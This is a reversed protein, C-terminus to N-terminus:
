SGLAFGATSFGDGFAKFLSNELASKGKRKIDKAQRRMDYAQLDAEYIKRTNNMEDIRMQTMVFNIPTDSNVDIGRAAFSARIAGVRAAQANRMFNVDERTQSQIRAAEQKLRRANIGATRQDEAGQRLNGMIQFGAGVVFPLLMGPM